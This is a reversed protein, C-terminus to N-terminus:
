LGRYIYYGTVYVYDSKKKTLTGTPISNTVWLAHFYGSHTNLNQYSLPYYSLLIIRNKMYMSVFQQDSESNTGTSIFHQDYASNMIVPFFSQDYSSNTGTSVFQQDHTSNTIVPIFSQDYVYNTETSVFHQDDVSVQFGKSM